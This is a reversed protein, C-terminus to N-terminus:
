AVIAATTTDSPSAPQASGTPEDAGVLDCVDVVEGVFTAGDGDGGV